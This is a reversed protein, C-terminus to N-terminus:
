GNDIATIEECEARWLRNLEDTNFVGRVRLSRTGFLLVDREDLSPDESFYVFHTIGMGASQFDNRDRASLPQIRCKVNSAITTPVNIEGMSGGRTKVDREHTVSHISTLGSLSM